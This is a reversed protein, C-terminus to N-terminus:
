YHVPVKQTKKTRQNQFEHHAVFDLVFCSHVRNCSLAAQNACYVGRQNEQSSFVALMTSGCCEGAYLIIATKINYEM